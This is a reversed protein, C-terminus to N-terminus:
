HSRPVTVTRIIKNQTCACDITHKTGPSRGDWFAIVHTVTGLMQLNRRYGASKGYKEWEALHVEHKINREQAYRIALADAGRAGGSVLVLTAKEINSLYYDLKECLLQYDSFGRSGAVLLRTYSQEESLAKRGLRTCNCCVSRWWGCLIIYVIRCGTWVDYESDVYRTLM